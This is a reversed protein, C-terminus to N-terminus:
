QNSDNQETWNFSEYNSVICEQAMQVNEKELSIADNTLCVNLQMLKLTQTWVKKKPVFM